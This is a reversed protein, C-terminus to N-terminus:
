RRLMWELGDVLSDRPSWGSNLLPSDKSAVFVENLGFEHKNHSSFENTRQLLKELIKLLELNTYGFSTGVDIEEPLEHALIWSVAYAIDRTTIWDYISSTDALTIPEGKNLSHILRPILRKQHQNPGYPYFIRAWTFRVNSKRFVERVSNLAVVKQQAYFSTPSLVTRGAASPGNQFGYEACTGLVILHEVDSHSNVVFKALTKTFNAYETNSPDDRYVGPTTIGATHVIVHPKWDLVKVFDQFNFIDGLVQQAQIEARWTRAFILVEHGDSQLRQCIASGLFGNGIILIKM